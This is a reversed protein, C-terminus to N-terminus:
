QRKKQLIPVVQEIGTDDIQVEMGIVRRFEDLTVRGRNIRVKINDGMSYGDFPVLGAALKIKMERMPDKHEFLYNNSRQDLDSQANVNNFFPYFERLYWSTQSSSNTKISNIVDPGSTIALGKVYNSIGRFDKPINFDVIESNLEFVVDSKDTGVDRYFTFTPATESFSINFVTNQSWSSTMEARSVLVMQKLFDLFNEHFLTRTITLNSVTGSIYPSEISGQTIKATLFNDTKTEIQDYENTVITGVATASYAQNYRVGYWGLAAMFTEGYVWTGDLTDQVLQVVGQWVLTNNRYVRIESFSAEPISSISLKLDNYPIFFRCRGVDNEYWEWARSTAKDFEYLNGSSDRIVFMYKATQAM